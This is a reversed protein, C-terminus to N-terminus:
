PCFGLRQLQLSRAAPDWLPRAEAFSPYGAHMLAPDSAADKALYVRGGAAGVIRDLERFLARTRAGENPFDLSLTWGPLPFSLRGPSVANGFIKLVSVFSACRHARMLRLTDRVTQAGAPTAVVYQYQFFGKSGYARNWGAVGDLPFFFTRYHELRRGRKARARANAGYLANLGAFLPSRLTGSPLAPASVNLRPPRPRDATHNGLILVGAGDTSTSDLWAVVYEWDREGDATLAAFETLDGFSREEVEIGEGPVRRLRLAASAIFGTMGGGGITAAFLEPEHAASCVAPGARDTRVLSIEEVYRGFTGARHHNKGHIDNAIAGGVTVAETGPVVPLFWGRPAFTRAIDRITVGAACRLVGTGEDFSVFRDIARSHVITGDPVFAQDGYSCGAGGPLYRLDPLRV